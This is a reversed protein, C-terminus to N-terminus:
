IVIVRLLTDQLFIKPIILLGLTPRGEERLLESSLTLFLNLSRHYTQFIKEEKTETIAFFSGRACPGKSLTIWSSFCSELFISHKQSSNSAKNSPSSTKFHISCSSVLKYKKSLNLSLTTIRTYLQMSPSNGEFLKYFRELLPLYTNKINENLEVLEKMLQIKGHGGTDQRLSLENEPFLRLHLSYESVKQRSWYFDANIFVYKPSSHTCVNCRLWSQM